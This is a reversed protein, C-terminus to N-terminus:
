HGLLRWLRDSNAVKKRILYEDSENIYKINKLGNCANNKKINLHDWRQDTPVKM